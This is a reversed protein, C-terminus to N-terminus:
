LKKIVALQEQSSRLPDDFDVQIGGTPKNDWALRNRIVQQLDWAVRFIDNLKDSFIGFNIMLTSAAERAISAVADIRETPIGENKRIVQAIEQLQGQGIRSYLDLAAIIAKAQQQTLLLQYTYLTNTKNDPIDFQQKTKRFAKDAAGKTSHDSHIHVFEGTTLVNCEEIPEQLVSVVFWRDSNIGQIQNGHVLKIM